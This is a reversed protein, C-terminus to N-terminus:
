ESTNIHSSLEHLIGKALDLSSNIYKRQFFLKGAFYTVGEERSAIKKLEQEKNQNSSIYSGGHAHFNRIERLNSISKWTDDNIDLSVELVNSFYKKWQEEPTRGSLDSLRLRASKKEALLEASTKVSGEIISWTSLLVQSRHLQPYEEKTETELHEIYQDFERSSEEIGDKALKARARLLTQESIFSLQEEFTENYASLKSLSYELDFIRLNFLLKAM